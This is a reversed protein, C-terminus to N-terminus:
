KVKWKQIGASWQTQMTVELRLGDTLVPQFTVQNYKDKETGYAPEKGNAAAAQVPKWESGSKYLLRWGAPVRVEGRGTDDFWYVQAESVTAPKDFAYEVWETSGKKPWWDFYSDPDNSARPEEGDNIPRPNKRGSTTVKSTTAITPYPLPKADTETEPIWVLMQGPGRNAWAYYPIATFDQSQKVVDGAADRSLSVAHGKVVMVGNLLDPKFEASLKENAPLM